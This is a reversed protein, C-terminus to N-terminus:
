WCPLVVDRGGCPVGGGVPHTDANRGPIQLEHGFGLEQDRGLGVGGVAGGLHEPLLYRPARYKVGGM